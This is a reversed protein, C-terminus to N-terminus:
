ALVLQDKKVVFLHLGDRSVVMVTEGVEINEKSMASWDLGDVKVSGIARGGLTSSVVGTKGVPDYGRFNAREMNEEAKVVFIM